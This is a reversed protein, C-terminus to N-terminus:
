EEPAKYRFRMASPTPLQEEAILPDICTYGAARMNNLRFKPPNNKLDEESISIGVMYNKNLDTKDTDLVMFFNCTVDAGEHAYNKIEVFEHDIADDNKYIERWMMQDLHATDVAKTRMEGSFNVIHFLIAMIATLVTFAALTEILTTGSDNLKGKLAKIM